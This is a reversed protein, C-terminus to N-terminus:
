KILGCYVAAATTNPSCYYEKKYIYSNDERDEGQPPICKHIYRSGKARWDRTHNYFHINMYRNMIPELIKDPVSFPHEYKIEEEPSFGIDLYHLYVIVTYINYRRSIKYRHPTFTHHMYPLIYRYAKM